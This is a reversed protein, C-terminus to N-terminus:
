CCGWFYRISDSSFKSKHAGVLTLFVLMAKSVEAQSHRLQGPVALQALLLDILGLDNDAGRLLLVDDGPLPALPGVVGLKILDMQVMVLSSWDQLSQHGPGNPVNLGHLLLHPM